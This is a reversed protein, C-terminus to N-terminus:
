ITMSEFGVASYSSVRSLACASRRARSSACCPNHCKPTRPAPTSPESNQTRLELYSHNEDQVIVIRKGVVEHLVKALQSGLDHHHSVVRSGHRRDFRQIGLADDDRCSWSTRFVGPDGHVQDTLEPRRRGNEPHAQSM